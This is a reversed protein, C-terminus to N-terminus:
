SDRPSPSTYLLCAKTFLGNKKYIKNPQKRPKAFVKKILRGTKGNVFYNKDAYLTTNGLNIEKRNWKLFTDTFSGNKKYIKKPKNPSEDYFKKLQIDMKNNIYKINNNKLENM